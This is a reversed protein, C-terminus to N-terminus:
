ATRGTRRRSWLRLEVICTLALVAVLVVLWGFAFWGVIPPNYLEIIHSPPEIAIPSFHIIALFVAGGGSLFAWFGPGVQGARYLLLGVVIAPYIGLSFTFANLDGTLPWGVHNGRIAHDLHHGLALFVALMTLRVLARDWREEPLGTRPMM